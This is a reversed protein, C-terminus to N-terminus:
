FGLNEGIKFLNCILHMPSKQFYCGCSFKQLKHLIATLTTLVFRLNSGNEHHEAKAIIRRTQKWSDATYTTDAFLRQKEQTAEYQTQAQKTLPEVLTQLRRNSAMGVVYDVHSKECWRLIRKRAFACDGRFIIRVDPFAQRIRNVLLRLVVGAYKAGDINSPRLLSVLLHRGCFVHLPLFCDHRYYGHYHRNEQHGYIEHDTPDFDLILEKPATQHSAIFHEVLCQSIKVLSERDISNEFRSLTSSSALNVERGVATQFCVDKRLEDHDNVDEYGAAIAYVRQRILYELAHNVYGPHRDDRIMQSLRKTLALRKDVERLLLLGGDSTIHGGNFNAEVKKRNLSSFRIMKSSCNAM